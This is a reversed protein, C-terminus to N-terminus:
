MITKDEVVIKWSGLSGKMLLSGIRFEDELVDGVELSDYFEKDVPIQLSIENMSDKIHESIDLTFHSQSIRLTVVYKATGKEEKEEIVQAQLESLEAELATIETRLEERYREETETTGCGTLFCMALICIAIIKKM